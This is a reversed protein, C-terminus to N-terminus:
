VLFSIRSAPCVMVGLRCPPFSDDSARVTQRGGMSVLQLLLISCSSALQPRHLLAEIVKRSNNRPDCVWKPSRVTHMNTLMSFPL